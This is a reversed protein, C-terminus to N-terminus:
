DIEYETDEWGVEWESSLINRTNSFVLEGETMQSLIDIDLWTFVPDHRFDKRLKKIDSDIDSDEYSIVRGMGSMMHYLMHCHFLWDKDESAEFEIVVSEHPAVDVTHKLPSYEGYKNVVRFFHGHLHMPHHMMTRNVLVFRVNEDKRILIKDAEDLTKGDISWVFREMDGTLNFVYERTEFKDSLSTSKVSKLKEYPTSPRESIFMNLHKDHKMKNDSMHNEHQSHSNEMNMDDKSMIEDNTELMNHINENNDKEMTDHNEHEMKYLNIMPIKNASIEEGEGLFLSAYGSSDHATARLEYSQEIPVNIIVDYTEGIGILFKDIDIPEVDVGDAAIIKMDGGAYNIYFYSSAAANIIRLKITKGSVNKLFSKLEGNILFADYAIDAIDMPPMRILSRKINEALARNKIVGWATQITGKKFNYYESGRKLTRLVESPNEDTWDSLVVVKEEDVKKIDNRTKVPEFVLSGYVGKQEQLGTHSHYWYTGPHKIRFEYTYITNPKIPPTTLYPVGDQRNPLLVGHWHVSTEVDMKNKVHIRAIDGVKFRLTPGPISNNISIARVDKGTYNVTKYDIELNYEKVEAMSYSTLTLFFLILILKYNM